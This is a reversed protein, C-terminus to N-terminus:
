AYNIKNYSPNDELKVGGSALDYTPNPNITVKDTDDNAVDYVLEEEKTTSGTVKHYVAREHTSLLNTEVNSDQDHISTTEKSISSYSPNPQIPAVEIAHYAYNSCEVKTYSSTSEMKINDQLANNRNQKFAYSPNTQLKVDSTIEIDIKNDFTHSGKKHSKRICLIIFCLFIIVFFFLVAGGM